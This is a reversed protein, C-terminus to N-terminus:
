QSDESKLHHLDIQLQAAARHLRSKVTGPRIRLAEATMRESWGLLLRCVVVARQKPDLAAIAAAISPDAHDHQHALDPSGHAPRKRRRIVSIGWNLGVRYVWGGPNDFTRVKPWRAYARTMAEDVAEAALEHDGFTVALARGVRDRQERYFDEFGLMPELVTAALLPDRLPDDDEGLNADCERWAGTLEMREVRGTPPTPEVETM